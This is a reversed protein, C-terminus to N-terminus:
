NISAEGKTQFLDECVTKAKKEAMQAHKPLYLAAYQALPYKAFVNLTLSGVEEFYLLSAVCDRALSVHCDTEDLSYKFAQGQRFLDSVLYEKISSHALAVHRHPYLFALHSM